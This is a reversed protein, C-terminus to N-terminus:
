QIKMNSPCSRGRPITPGGLFFFFLKTTTQRHNVLWLMCADKVRTQRYNREENFGGTMDGRHKEYFRARALDVKAAEEPTEDDQHHLDNVEMEDM